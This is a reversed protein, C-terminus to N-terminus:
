IYQGFLLAKSFIDTFKIESNNEINVSIIPIEQEEIFNLQEQIPSVTKDNFYYVIQSYPSLKTIQSHDNSETMESTM